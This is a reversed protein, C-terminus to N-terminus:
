YTEELTVIMLKGDVKGVLTINGGPWDPGNMAMIASVEMPTTFLPEFANGEPATIITVHKQDDAWAGYGWSAGIRRLRSGPLPQATGPDYTKGGGDCGTRHLSGNSLTGGEYDASFAFCRGDAFSLTVPLFGPAWAGTLRARKTEAVTFAGVVKAHAANARRYAPDVRFLGALSADPVRKLAPAGPEAPRAVGPRPPAGPADGGYGAPPVFQAKAGVGTLCLLCAIAFLRTSDRM